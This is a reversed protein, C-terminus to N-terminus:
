NAATSFSSRIKKYVSRQLEEMLLIEREGHVYGNSAFWTLDRYREKNNIWRNIEIKESGDCCCYCNISFCLDADEKARALVSASDYRTQQFVLANRAKWLHWLIWPFTRRVLTTDQRKRTIIIPFEQRRGCRWQQPM